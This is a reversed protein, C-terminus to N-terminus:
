RSALSPWMSMTEFRSSMFDDGFYTACFQQVPNDAPYGLTRWFWSDLCALTLLSDAMIFAFAAATLPKRVGRPIREVFRVAPPLLWTVWAVGIVGWVVMMGLSTHGHFNLPQGVYSWAVIGYRMEFFWGAFYELGGGVLGSVAFQMAVSRGRLPNVALTILVAGLGYLPSLPGIVFGVRSEWRGDILFSVATEGALGVLSSLLFLWVLHFFGLEVPHREKIHHRKIAIVSSMPVNYGPRLRVPRPM